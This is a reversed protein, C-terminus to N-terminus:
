KKGPMFNSAANATDIAMGVIQEANRLGMQTPTTGNIGAVALAIEKNTLGQEKCTKIYDAVWGAKSYATLEKASKTNLDSQLQAMEKAHQLQMGAIKENSDLQAKLQKFQAQSQADIIDKQSETDIDSKTRYAGMNQAHEEQARLADTNQRAINGADVDANMGSVTASDQNLINTYQQQLAQIQADRSDKGTIARFNVPIIPIGMAIGAVSLGVSLLTAWTEWGKAKSTPTLVFNGNEDYDGAGMQVLAQEYKDIANKASKTDVDGTEPNQLNEVLKNLDDYKTQLEELASLTTNMDTPKGDAVWKGDDGQSYGYEKMGAKTLEGPKYDPTSNLYDAIKAPDNSNEAKVDDWSKSTKKPETFKDAVLSDSKQETSPEEAKPARAAKQSEFQDKSMFYTSAGNKTGYKDKADEYSLSYMDNKDEDTSAFKNAVISEGAKKAKKVEDKRNAM